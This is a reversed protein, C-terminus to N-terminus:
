SGTKIFNGITRAAGPTLKVKRWGVPATARKRYTVIDQVTSKAVEFKDAIEQMSLGHEEYLERILDVEHDSLKARPHYQGVRYGQDSVGVIEETPPPGDKRNTM